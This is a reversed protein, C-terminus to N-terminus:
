LIERGCLKEVCAHFDKWISEYAQYIQNGKETIQYYKKPATRGESMKWSAEILGSDELRYLVPYLTGEKLQFFGEGQQELKQLLEYGYTQRQSILKLVVMDLVGKKLQQAFKEEM